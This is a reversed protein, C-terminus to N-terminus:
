DEGKGKFLGIITKGVIALAIVASFTGFMVLGTVFNVAYASETTAAKYVTHYCTVEHNNWTKNAAASDVLQVGGGTRGGEYVEYYAAPLLELTATANHCEELTQLYPYQGSTGVAVRQGNSLNITAASTNTDLRLTKEFGYTVVIGVMVVIALLLLAVAYAVHKNIEGFSM